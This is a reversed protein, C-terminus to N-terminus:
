EELSISSIKKQFAVCENGLCKGGKELLNGLFHERADTM